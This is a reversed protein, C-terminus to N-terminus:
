HLVFGYYARDIMAQTTRLQERLASVQDAQRDISRAIDDKVRELLVHLIHQGTAGETTPGVTFVAALQEQVHRQASLLDYAAKALSVRRQAAQTRLWHMLSVPFNASFHETPESFPKRYSRVRNSSIAVGIGEKARVPTTGPHTQAMRHHQRPKTAAMRPTAGTSWYHSRPLRDERLSIHWFFDSHLHLALRRRHHNCHGGTMSFVTQPKRHHIRQQVSHLSGTRTFAFRRAMSQHMVP